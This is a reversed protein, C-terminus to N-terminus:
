LGMIGPSMINNPDLLKKLKKLLKYYEGFKPMQDAWLAGMRYPCAGLELLKNKIEHWAKLALESEQKSSPNFYTVVIVVVSRDCVFGGAGVKLGYKDKIDRSIKEIERLYPGVEGIPIHMPLAARMGLKYGFLGVWRYRERWTEEALQPGLYTGDKGAAEMLRNLEINLIDKNNAEIVFKITHQWPAKEPFLMNLTWSTSIYAYITPIRMRRVRYVAEGLAELSDYGFTAFGLAGSAEEIKLALETIIGLTGESGCFLGTLDNGLAYRYFPGHSNPNAMSGTTLIEGTPLVVKCGLVCEGQNSSNPGAGWGTGHSAFNGGVTAGMGNEPSMIFKFGRKALIAELEGFTIAPEVICLLNREDIRIVRNMKALDVVVSGDVVPVAGWLSTGSSRPYIPTRTENAWMVIRQVEETTSPRVVALPIKGRMPSADRAYILLAPKSDIVNEPGVIGRLDEIKDEPYPKM